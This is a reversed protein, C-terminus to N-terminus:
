DILRVARFGLDLVDPDPIIGGAHPGVYSTVLCYANPDPRSGACAGGTGWDFEVNVQSEPASTWQVVHTSSDWTYHFGEVFSRRGGRTAHLTPPQSINTQSYAGGPCGTGSVLDLDLVAGPTPAWEFRCNSWDGTAAPDNGRYVGDVQLPTFSVIGYKEGGPTEVEQSPDAVPFTKVSGIQSTLDAYWNSSRHGDIACTHTAPSEGLSVLIHEEGTIWGGVQNSGGANTCHPATGVDWEGLNLLGWSSSSLLQDFWFTCQSGVAGTLCSQVTPLDLEIPVPNGGGAPGWMATAEWRVQASEFGLIPAFYLDRETGYGVTVRGASGSLGIAEYTERDAGSRNAAALSDAQAQAPGDFISPFAGGEEVAYTQAAALAAADTAAVMRRREVLLAGMDVVLAAMGLMGTLGVAVIFAVAGREDRVIKVRM